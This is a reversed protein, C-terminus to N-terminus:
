TASAAAKGDPSSPASPSRRGATRSPSPTTAPTLALEPAAPANGEAGAGEEGMQAEIVKRTEELQRSAYAVVVMIEDLELDDLVDRGVDICCADAIRLAVDFKEAGSLAPDALSEALEMASRNLGRVRTVHGTSLRLPKLPALLRDTPIAGGASAPFTGPALPDIPTTSM